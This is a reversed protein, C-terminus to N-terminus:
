GKTAPANLFAFLDAFDQPTKGIELGEPMASLPSALLRKIDSRLVTDAKGGAGTLTVSNGTEGTLIGSLVQGKKTELVYNTYRTEVARNPDLVHLLLYQPSHDALSRLDPGVNFGLDGVKHCQACISAFFAKGKEPNGKLKLADAYKEIVRQRDPNVAGAFAKAARTKVAEDPNELLKRRRTADVDAALITKNEIAGLLLHAREPRQLLTDLTQARLKPTLTKWTKLLPQMAAPESMRSLGAVAAAQVNESTQPTLLGALMDADGAQEEKNAGRGMVSAAAIRLEDSSKDDIVAERAADFVAGLKEVADKLAPSQTQLKVLSTGAADLADLLGDLAAFKKVSDSQEGSAVGLATVIAADNKEAAAVKLLNSLLRVPPPRKPNKTVGAIVAGVNKANVSSMAAATIYADDRDRMAVTALADGARADDWEGLSYALQMRVTPDPDKAMKLFAEALQPPKQVRQESLRVAHARVGAIPDEFAHILVEPKLADLGDLTCLAHLRALARLSNAALKELMPVPAKDGREILVQQAMDREWGGPSELSAVLGAFDLKSLNPIPRLKKAPPYVRYIRGKDHGARLNLRKQWDEPIWQPHEIVLRYM